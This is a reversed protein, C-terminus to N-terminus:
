CFAHTRETYRLVLKFQKNLRVRTQSAILWLDQSKIIIQSLAARGSFYEGTMGNIPPM